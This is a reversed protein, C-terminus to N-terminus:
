PSTPTPIESESTPLTHQYVTAQLSEDTPQWDLWVRTRGGSTAIKGAQDTAIEIADVVFLQTNPFARAHTVENRTLTVANVTRTSGKVEVHMEYGDLMMKLDYPKGVEIVDLAGLSSYHAVAASVAHKEIAIRVVSDAHMGQGVTSTEVISSSTDSVGDARSRLGWRGHGIGDVSFFIDGNRAIFANSDSSSQQITRRVVEQWTRPRSPRRSAVEAYIEQYHGEGGLAVLAEVISERWSQM